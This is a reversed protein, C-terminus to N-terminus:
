PRSELDDLARDAAKRAARYWGGVTRGLKEPKVSEAAAKVVPSEELAVNAKDVLGEGAIKAQVYATAAARAAGGSTGSDEAVETDVVVSAGDFGRVAKGPVEAMGVALDIGTGESMILSLVKGTKRGFGVDRVKGLLTGGTDTIMMDRWVVTTDWDYGLMRDAASPSLLAPVSLVLPVGAVVERDEPWPAFRSKLKIIWLLPTRRVLFGVVRPESPDFLVDTVKGLRRGTSGRVTARYMQAIKPM